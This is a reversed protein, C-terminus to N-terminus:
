KIINRAKDEGENGVERTFQTLQLITDNLHTDDIEYIFNEDTIKVKNEKELENNNIEYEETDLDVSQKSYCGISVLFVLIIPLLRKM